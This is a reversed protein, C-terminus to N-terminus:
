NMVGWHFRLKPKCNGASMLVQTIGDSKGKVFPLMAFDFDGKDDTKVKGDHRDGLSESHMAIEADPPFGTGQIFALEFKPMLRVAEVRCGHDKGEIANPQVSLTAYHKGDESILAFRFPEGPAADPIIAHFVDDPKPGTMVRGDDDLRLDGGSLMTATAETADLPLTHLQYIEEHPLGKTYLEYVAGHGYRFKEKATLEVGNGGVHKSWTRHLSTRKQIDAQMERTPDQSALPLSSLVLFLITAARGL